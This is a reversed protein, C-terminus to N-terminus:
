IPQKLIANLYILMANTKEWYSPQLHPLDYHGVWFLSDEFPEAKCGYLQFLIILVCDRGSSGIITHVYPKKM